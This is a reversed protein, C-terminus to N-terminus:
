LVYKKGLYAEIVKSDSAIVEPSGEVLKSGFNLVVVRNVTKMIARMVHEVWVITIGRKKRIERILNIFGDIENPNLGSVSEDILLLKPETALARALELRRKDNLNLNMSLTDKQHSLGCFEISYLAERRADAMSISEKRGFLVSVLVNDLVSLSSFPKPIQFTRGIGMKCIEHPKLVKKSSAIINDLFKVSGSEPPYFGTIVNFLTTKGSGNPGVLGLIEGENVIIDVNNLAVVGGFKKTIGEIRLIEIALVM